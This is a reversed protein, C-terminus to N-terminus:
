GAGEDPPSACWPLKTAAAPCAALKVAPAPAPSTGGGAFLGPRRRQSQQRRRLARRPRSSSAPRAATSPRQVSAAPGEVRSGRGESERVLGRGCLLTAGWDAGRGLNRLLAQGPSARGLADGPGDVLEVPQVAASPGAHLCGHKQATPLRWGRRGSGSASAARGPCRSTTPLLWHSHRTAACQRAAAPGPATTWPMWTGAPMRM